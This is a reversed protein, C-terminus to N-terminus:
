LESGSVSRISGFCLKNKNKRLLKFRVYGGVGKIYGDCIECIVFNGKGQGAGPQGPKAVPQGAQGPRAATAKGLPSSGAAAKGPLPTISISPSNGRVGKQGQASFFIRTLVFLYSSFFLTL